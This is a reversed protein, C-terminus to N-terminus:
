PGTNTWPPPRKIILSTGRNTYDLTAPPAGALAGSFMGVVILRTYSERRLEEESVSKEVQM